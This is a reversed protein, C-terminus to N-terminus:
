LLKHNIEIRANPFSKQLMQVTILAEKHNKNDTNFVEPEKTKHFVTITYKMQLDNIKNVNLKIQQLNGSRPSKKM